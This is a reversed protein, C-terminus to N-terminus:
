IDQECNELHESMIKLYFPQENWLDNNMSWSIAAFFEANQDANFCGQM